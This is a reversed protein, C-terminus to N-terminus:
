GEATWFIHIINSNPTGAKVWTLTINTADVTTDVSQTNSGADDDKIYISKTANGVSCTTLDIRDLICNDDGGTSDWGGWSHSVTTSGVLKTAHFFVRKPAIGLGHAITQTGSATDGARTAVGNSFATVATAGAELSVTAGASTQVSIEGTASNVFMRRTGAAPSAPAAVGIIDTYTDGIKNPNSAM